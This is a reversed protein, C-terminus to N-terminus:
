SPRDRGPPESIAAARAHAPDTGAGGADGGSLRQPQRDRRDQRWIERRLPSGNPFNAQTLEAADVQEIVLKKSDVMAQLDVGLGKAREFLLGLEEDFVFM